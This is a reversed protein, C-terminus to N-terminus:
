AGDFWFALIPSAARALIGSNDGPTAALSIGSSQAPTVGAWSDWIRAAHSVRMM